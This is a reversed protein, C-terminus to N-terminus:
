KPTLIARDQFLLCRAHRTERAIFTEFINFSVATDCM